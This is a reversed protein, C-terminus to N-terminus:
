TRGLWRSALLLHQQTSCVARQHQLGPPQLTGCSCAAAAATGTAEHPRCDTAVLAACSNNDAPLQPCRTYFGPCAPPYCCHLCTQKLISGAQLHSSMNATHPPCTLAMPCAYLSLAHVSSQAAVATLVLLQVRALQPGSCDAPSNLWELCVKPTEYTPQVYIVGHQLAERGNCAEASCNRTNSRPTHQRGSGFSASLRGSGSQVVQVVYM